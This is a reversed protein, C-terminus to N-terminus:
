KAGQEEFLKIIKIIVNTAKMMNDVSIYEFKGHFNEGGTFINPTPLGMFSLQSGDTGGRIPSVIPKINLSEMAEYAIDVIEKVPEIKEKMNYYQDKMELIIQSDDYKEKFKEVNKEIFAKRENFKTRDFDRIIYSLTTEEVDGHISILHFFGEYGETYEPAEEAPLTNHFEMAIKASNVLKGKATGPHVSNGKITIKAAAANFSEYELEGLPGGDVTYAYKANFKAVDFKHPGRGIEEDPTFAVRVKGHKVEPHKILYAMATMIEAIGAKNDAGLLTTGDTTILTHGKYQPLEPFDKPSLVVNLTKNLTIDNGDYNEIIQPKVNAGIFDTATDVHALFGITPVQKDTNAPLSAMVYGNEDIEVEEMGIQQLEQVLMKGLTLQGPTSPCTTSDENSQTDVKVYSTFRAIIEDKM